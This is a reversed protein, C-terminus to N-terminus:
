VDLTALRDTVEGTLPSAPLPRANINERGILGLPAQNARMRM